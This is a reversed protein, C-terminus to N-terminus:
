YNFSVKSSINNELNHILTEKDQIIKKMDERSKMTEELELNVDQNERTMTSLDDQMRRNDRSLNEKIRNTEVLEAETTELQRRLSRIERENAAIDDNCHDLKM